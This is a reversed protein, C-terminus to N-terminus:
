GNGAVKGLSPRTSGNRDFDPHWQQSALLAQPKEAVEVSRAQSKKSTQGYRHSGAASFLL